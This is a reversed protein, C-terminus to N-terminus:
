RLSTALLYTVISLFLFTLFIKMLLRSTGDEKETSTSEILNVSKKLRAYKKNVHENMFTSIVIFFIALAPFVFILLKVEIESRLGIDGPYIWTRFVWFGPVMIIGISQFTAAINAIRDIGNCRHCIGIEDIRKRKCKQCQQYKM